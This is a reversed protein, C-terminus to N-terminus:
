SEREPITGRRDLRADPESAEERVLEWYDLENQLKELEDAAEELANWADGVALAKNKALDRLRAVLEPGRPSTGAESM